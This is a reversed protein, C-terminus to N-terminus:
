VIHICFLINSLTPKVAIIDERPMRKVWLHWGNLASKQKLGVDHLKGFFYISKVTM